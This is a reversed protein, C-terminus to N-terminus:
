IKLGHTRAFDVLMYGVGTIILWIVSTISKEIIAQRLAISQAEKQIALKVWQHEEDTLQAVPNLALRIDEILQAREEPSM